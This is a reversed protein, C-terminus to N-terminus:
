LSKEFVWFSEDRTWGQARYLAQAQANGAGTSLTLRIAGSAKAFAEAAAMLAQGVGRGRQAPDVFLDNLILIPAASVSSFSPYLQVLGAAHGEEDEAVFITSQGKELREGLFRKALELDGPKGYFGRYADFLPALASVDARTARRVSIAM